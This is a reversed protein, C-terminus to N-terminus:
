PQVFWTPGGFPAAVAPPVDVLAGVAAQISLPCPLCPLTPSASPLTCPQLMAPRRFPKTFEPAGILLRKRNGYVPIKGLKIDQFPMRLSAKETKFWRQQRGSSSQECRHALAFDSQPVCNKWRQSAGACTM